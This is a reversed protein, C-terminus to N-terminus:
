LVNLYALLVCTYTLPVAVLLFLTAAKVKKNILFVPRDMAKLFKATLGIIILSPALVLGFYIWFFPEGRGASMILGSGFAVALYGGYVLGVSVVLMFFLLYSEVSRKPMSTQALGLAVAALGFVGIIPAFLWGIMYDDEDGPQAQIMVKTPFTVLALFILVAGIITFIQSSTLLHSVMM